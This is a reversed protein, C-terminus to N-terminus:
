QKKGCSECHNFSEILGVYPVFKCKHEQKPSDWELKFSDPIVIPVSKYAIEWSYLGTPQQLGGVDMRKNYNHYDSGEIYQNILLYVWHSMPLLLTDALTIKTLSIGFTNFDIQYYGDESVARSRFITSM